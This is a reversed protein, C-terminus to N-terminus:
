FMYLISYFLISNAWKKAARDIVELMASNFSPNGRNGAKTAASKDRIYPMFIFLMM